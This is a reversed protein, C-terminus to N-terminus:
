TFLLQQDPNRAQKIRENIFNSLNTTLFKPYRNKKVTFAIAKYNKTIFFSFFM